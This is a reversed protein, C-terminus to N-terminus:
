LLSPKLNVGLLVMVDSLLKLICVKALLTKETGPVGYLIVGVLIVIHNWPIKEVKMLSVMPDVDDQLLGVFSLVFTMSSYSILVVSCFSLAKRM